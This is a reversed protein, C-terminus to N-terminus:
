KEYNKFLGGKRIFTRINVKIYEKNNYEVISCPEYAFLDKYKIDVLVVHKPLKIQRELGSHSHLYNIGQSM